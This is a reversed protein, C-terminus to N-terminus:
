QSPMLKSFEEYHFSKNKNPKNHNPNPPKKKNKYWGKHKGRDNKHLVLCSQTFVLLFMCLAVITLVKLRNM